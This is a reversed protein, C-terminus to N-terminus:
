AIGEVSSHPAFAPRPIEELDFRAHDSGDARMPVSDVPAGALWRPTFRYAGRDMASSGRVGTTTPTPWTAVGGSAPRSGAARGSGSSRIVAASSAAASSQSPAGAPPVAGAPRVSRSRASLMRTTADSPQDVALGANATAARRPKSSPSSGASSMTEEMPPLLGSASM